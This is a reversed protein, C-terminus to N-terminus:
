LSAISVFVREIGPKVHSYAKAYHNIMLAFAYHHGSSTAVYGAYCKTRKLTGSKAHIRGEAATGRAVSKLTGSRGAVPLSQRYLESHDSQAMVRLFFALQRPTILNLPSLGSGDHLALGTTTLEHTRFFAEVAQVGSTYSGSESAKKGMSRLLCEAHLNISKHNTKAILEQLPVSKERTLVVPEPHPKHKSLRVTTAPEGVAIGHSVLAQSLHRACTLAPDPLAGKITFRQSGAPVTGRLYFEHSYPAGYIYGQDGSGVPGTRMENHFVADPLEPRTHLFKASQGSKGPRFAIQFTNEYFCLGSAGCAYYNGLDKWTWGGSRQEVTFHSADGIVSGQIRHIGARKVVGAWKRFLEDWGGQALTPDGGGKIILNGNLVGTEVDIEGEQQLQTEFRFDPGLSHLAVGTTLLKTTSAPILSKKGNLDIVFSGEPDSGIPIM